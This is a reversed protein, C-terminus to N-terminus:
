YVSLGEDEVEGSGEDRLEELVWEVLNKGVDINQNSVLGFSGGVRFGVIDVGLIDLLNGLGNSLQGLLVRLPSAGHNESLSSIGRNGSDRLFVSIDIDELYRDMGNSLLADVVGIASPLCM